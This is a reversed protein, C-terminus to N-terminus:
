GSRSRASERHAPATLMGVEVHYRPSMMCVPVRVLGGVREVGPMDRLMASAKNRNVGMYSAFASVTMPETLLQGLLDRYADRLAAQHDVTPETM